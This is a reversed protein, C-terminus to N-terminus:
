GAQSITGDQDIQWTIGTEASEIEIRFNGNDINVTRTHRAGAESMHFPVVLQGYKMEPAVVDDALMIQAWADGGWELNEAVAARAAELDERVDVEVAEEAAGNAPATTSTDAAAGSDGNDDGCAALGLVAGTALVLGIGSALVKTTKM